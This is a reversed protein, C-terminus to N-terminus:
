DRKRAMVTTFVRITDDTNVTNAVFVEGGSALLDGEHVVVDSDLHIRFRPTVSALGLNEIVEPGRSDDRIWGKYTDEFAYVEMDPDGDVGEIITRVLLDIDTQLGTEGVKRVAALM